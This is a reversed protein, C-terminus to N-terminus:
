AVQRQSSVSEGITISRRACALPLGSPVQRMMSPMVSASAMSCQVSINRSTAVYPHAYLARAQMNQDAKSGAALAVSDQATSEARHLFSGHNPEHFLAQRVHLLITRTSTRV